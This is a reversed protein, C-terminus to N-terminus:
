PEEDAVATHDRDRSYDIEDPGDGVHHSVGADSIWMQEGCERCVLDESPASVETLHIRLRDAVGADAAILSDIFGLLMSVQTDRSWGQADSVPQLVTEASITRTEGKGLQTALWHELDLWDVSERRGLDLVQAGGGFGDLVPRSSYVSYRFGWLGTLNLARACRFAYDTVHEVDGDGGDWLWVTGNNPEIREARFGIPQYGADLEDRLQAYIALAADINGAGVPLEVSFGTWYDVM